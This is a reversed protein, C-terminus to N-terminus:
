APKTQHQLAAKRPLEAGKRFLNWLFALVWGFIYGIIATIGVLLAATPLSFAAVRFPNNLFHLYSIWDLLTQAIGTAVLLIWAVHWLGLFSGLILGAKNRNLEEM